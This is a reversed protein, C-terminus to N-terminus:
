VQWPEGTQRKIHMGMHEALTADINKIIELLKIRDNGEFKALGGELGLHAKSIVLGKIIRIAYNKDKDTGHLADKLLKLFYGTAQLADVSVRKSVEDKGYLFEEIYPMATEIHEIIVSRVSDLVSLSADNICGMILPMSDKGLIKSLAKVAESRVLWFDDSLCKVLVGKSEKKGIEGLCGCAAARLDESGDKTLEEMDKIYQVPKLRSFLRVAWLRVSHDPDNMLKLVDGAIEPPFGELISIIKYRYFNNKELFDLLVKASAASKIQGLAIISFYAIDDDRSHLTKKIIDPSSPVNIYGLSLIAEIRKWKNWSGTATKEMKLIKESTMFCSKFVKQESENFFIAERNRNTTVDLFQQPTLDAAFPMCVKDSITQGSLTLEYVDKKINLLAKKRRSWMYEKILVYIILIFALIILVALLIIDIKFILDTYYNYM